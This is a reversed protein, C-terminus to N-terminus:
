ASKPKRNSTKAMPLLSFGFGSLSGAFTTLLYTRHISLFPPFYPLPTNIQPIDCLLQKHTYRALDEPEYCMFMRTLGKTM